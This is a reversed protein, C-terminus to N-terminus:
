VDTDRLRGIGCSSCGDESAERRQVLKGLMGDVLGELRGAIVLAFSGPRQADGFLRQVFSQFLPWM